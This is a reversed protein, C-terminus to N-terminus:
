GRGALFYILIIIVAGLQLLVRWRMLRNGYKANFSGGKAMSIVGMLLVGVIMVLALVLLASLFAQM